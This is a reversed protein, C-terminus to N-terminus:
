SNSLVKYLAAWIPSGLEPLGWYAFNAKSLLMIGGGANALAELIDPIAQVAQKIDESGEGLWVVVNEATQYIDHRM